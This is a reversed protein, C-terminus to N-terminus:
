CCALSNSLSAGWLLGRGRIDGVNPHTELKQKLGRELFVGMKSVNEVWKGERLQKQVELAAACCVPHGQYTQGHMFAGTGKDLADTVRSGILVAAVPQFGGGLGKGIITIDPVIGVAPDQWAHLTGCRGMGSMVEDLIILAGYKRCVAEMAAFYGPLCPVCGMAQHFKYILIYVELSRSVAGVVPEAVFACVTEPGLRQFEADLEEALRAIYQGDSEDEKRGRYSYCPSVHSCNELLLPEFLARRGKHGGLALSGLTTGHYSQKRAIFKTREVQSPSLELFYQRTLKMAADM